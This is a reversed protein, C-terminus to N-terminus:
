LSRSRAACRPREPRPSEINSVECSAGRGVVEAEGSLVYMSGSFEVDRSEIMSVPWYVDATSSEGKSLARCIPFGELRHKAEVRIPLVGARQMNVLGAREKDHALHANM